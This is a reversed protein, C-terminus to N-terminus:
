QKIGTLTVGQIMYRQTFFFVALVPIMVLTAAAM